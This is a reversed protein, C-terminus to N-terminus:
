KRYRVVSLVHPFSPPLLCILLSKKGGVCLLFPLVDREKRAQKGEKQGERLLHLLLSQHMGNELNNKDRLIHQDLHNKDM